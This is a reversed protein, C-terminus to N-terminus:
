HHHAYSVELLLLRVATGDRQHGPPQLPAQVAGVKDEGTVDASLEPRPYESVGEYDAPAVQELDNIVPAAQVPKSAHSMPNDWLERTEDVGVIPRSFKEPRKRQTAPQVSPVPSSKAPGPTHVLQMHFSMLQLKDGLTTKDDIEADTDFVCWSALCKM